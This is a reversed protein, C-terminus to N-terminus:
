RKLKRSEPRQEWLKGEPGCIGFAPDDEPKNPKFQIDGRGRKLSIGFISLEVAKPHACYEDDPDAAWHACERCKNRENLEVTELIKARVVKQEESWAECNVYEQYHEESIQLLKSFDERQASSIIHSGSVDKGYNWVVLAKGDTDLSSTATGISGHSHKFMVRTTGM